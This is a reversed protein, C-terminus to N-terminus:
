GPSGFRESVASIIDTLDNRAFLEWKDQIKSLISDADGDEYDARVLMNRRLLRTWRPALQGRFSKFLKTEAKAFQFVAERASADGPGLVLLLTLRDESNAFEFLMLRNSPTWGQGKMLSPCQDWAKPCFRILGKTSHDLRLREDASILEELTTKVRASVDPKYEYILDIAQRHKDYIQRALRQIESDELVFRRLMKVYHDMFIRVEEGLSGSKVQQCHEVLECVTTYSLPIWYEQEGEEEPPDGGPSLLVFQRVSSPYRHEVANRYRSLQASHEGSSLKNEIACAFGSTESVISIDIHDRERSVVADSLNWVDADVPTLGLTGRLKNGVAVRTLFRKLFYQGLSHSGKPDLLWRLFNSHRIEHWQLDLVEFINFDALLDELRELEPNEAVFSELMEHDDSM